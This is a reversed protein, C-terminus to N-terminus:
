AGMNGSGGGYNDTEDGHGEASVAELEAEIDLDDALVGRRKMEKLLTSRTINGATRLNMLLSAESADFDILDFNSNLTVSGGDSEGVWLAMYKLVNEIMDQAADAMNKIPSTTKADDSKAEYRTRTNDVQKLPKLSEQEIAAQLNNIDEMGSQLAAGSSEVWQLTATPDDALIVSRSTIPFKEINLGCGFLMPCRAVSLCNDQEGQSRWLRVILDAMDKLPSETYFGAKPDPDTIYPVVPVGFEAPFSIDVASELYDDTVNYVECRGPTFRRIREIKKQEMDETRYETERVRFDIIRGRDDPQVFIVEIKQYLRVYPRVDARREDALTLANSVPMDVLVWSIGDRIGAAVVRKFFVDGKDGRLDIDEWWARAEESVDDGLTTEKSFIRGVYGTIADKLYNKIALTKLRMAYDTASEFDTKPLYKVGKDRLATSGGWVDLMKQTLQQEDQYILSPTTYLDKLTKSDPM